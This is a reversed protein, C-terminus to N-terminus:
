AALLDQLDVLRHQGTFRHRDFPGGAVLDNEPVRATRPNPQISMVPVPGSDAMPRIAVINAVTSVSVSRELPAHLVETMADGAPDGHEGDREGDSPDADLPDVLEVLGQQAEGDGDSDGGNGFTEWRHEVNVKANPVSRMLSRLATTRLSEATSARPETVTMAVSLVPVKVSFVM